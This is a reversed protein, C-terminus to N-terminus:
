NQMKDNPGGTLLRYALNSTELKFRERYPPPGLIWQLVSESVSQSVSQCVCLSIKYDTWHQQRMPCILIGSSENAVPLNTKIQDLQCHILIIVGSDTWNVGYFCYITFLTIMSIFERNTLTSFYLSCRRYDSLEWVINKIHVMVQPDDTALLHNFREELMSQLEGVVYLHELNKLGNWNECVFLASISNTPGMYLFTVGVAIRGIALLATKSYNILSSEHRKSFEELYVTMEAIVVIFVNLVSWACIGFIVVIVLIKLLTTFLINSYVSIFLLQM